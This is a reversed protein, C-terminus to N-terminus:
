DGGERMCWAGWMARYAAELDRTFGVADLLPSAALQQRLGARLV